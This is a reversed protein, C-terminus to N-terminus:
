GKGEEEREGRGKYRSPSRPLAIAGGVHGPSARGGVANKQLGCGSIQLDTLLKVWQLTFIKIKKAQFEPAGASPLGRSKTWGAWLIAVGSNTDRV